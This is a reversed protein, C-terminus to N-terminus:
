WTFPHGFTLELILAVTWILPGLAVPLLLFLLRIGKMERCLVVTFTMLFIWCFSLAYIAPTGVSIEPFGRLLIALPVFSTLVTVVILVTKPGTNRMPQAAARFVMNGTQAFVAKEARPAAAGGLDPSGQAGGEVANRIAKGRLYRLMVVFLVCCCALPVYSAAVKWVDHHSPKLASLSIDSLVLGAAALLAILTTVELMTRGWAKLKLLSVAAILGAIAIPMQILVYPPFIKFFAPMDPNARFRDDMTVSAFIGFASSFLMIGGLAIWLGAILMGSAPLRRQVM